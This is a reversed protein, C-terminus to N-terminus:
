AAHVMRLLGLRRAEAVYIVNHKADQLQELDVGAHQVDVNVDVVAVANLLGEIQTVAHHRDREVLVALEERARAREVVIARGLALVVRHVHRQFVAHVVGAVLHEKLRDHGLDHLHVLRPRDHQAAARVAQRAVPKAAEVQGHLAVAVAKLEQLLVVDRHEHQATAAVSQAIHRAAPTVLRSTEHADVQGVVERLRREILVVVVEVGLAQANRDGVHLVGVRVILELADLDLHQLVQAAQWWDWACLHRIPRRCLLPLVQWLLVHVRAATPLQM